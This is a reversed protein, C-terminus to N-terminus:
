ESSYRDRDAGGYKLGYSNTNGYSTVFNSRDRDYYEPMPERSFRAEEVKLDPKSSVSIPSSKVNSIALINQATLLVVIVIKNM